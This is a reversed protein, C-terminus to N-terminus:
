SANGAQEGSGGGKRNQMDRWQSWLRDRHDPAAIAAIREARQEVSAERLDATGFETVVYDVDARAASVPTGGALAAVIRSLSGGRAAAPLALVSRGGPSLRAGRLFDALGGHGSVQRGDVSEANVQGSMDVELCFNVALFSPTAAFTAAAHTEGVPAFRVGDRAAIAALFEGSGLAVGSTVGRPFRNAELLPRIPGCVGGAHFALDTLDSAAVQELIAAQLKGLGLQIADGSRMLEVIRAAIARSAPDAAGPDYGPLPAPGEALAAFRDVPYRPGDRVDPMEPNVVGILMAGAAIAAPAFDASVGLGITGDSRPPPTAVIVADVTGPRALRAWFVSYHLPLHAVRGDRLGRALGRTAFITEVRTNEGYACLDDDTVGPVFSGTLVVDRWLPPDALVADLLARPLGAGASILIRGGRPAMRAAEELTVYRGRAMGGTMGGTM